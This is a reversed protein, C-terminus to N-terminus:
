AKERESVNRHIMGSIVAYVAALMVLAIGFVAAARLLLAGFAQEFLAQPMMRILIETQPDMLWLDNTFALRHLGVFLREFGMTNMALMLGLAGIILVGAGCAAGALAARHRHRLRAGTWAIAVALGAALAMCLKYGGQALRILGRVDRMHQREREGLVPLDLEQDESAYAMYLAIRTAADEQEEETLGIYATIQADDAFGFQQAVAKRSQSAYLTQDSAMDYATGLLAGVATLVITLAALVSTALSLKKM